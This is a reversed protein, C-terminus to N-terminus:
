RGGIFFGSTGMIREEWSSTHCTASPARACATMVRTETIQIGRVSLLPPILRYAHWSVSCVGYVLFKAPMGRGPLLSKANRRLRGELSRGSDCVQELLLPM